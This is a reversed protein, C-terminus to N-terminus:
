SRLHRGWMVVWKYNQTGRQGLICHSPSMKREKSEQPTVVEEGNGKSTAM